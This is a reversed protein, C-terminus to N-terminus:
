HWGGSLIKSIDNYTLLLFVVAIAVLGAIQVANQVAVSLPKRRAKEILLFVVHGGDVIPLPLFNIVALNASIVAMLWIVWIPGRQEGLQMGTHFIGVPGSFQSGHVRGKVFQKLTAYTLIIFDGTEHVGIKLADFLSSARVVDGDLPKVAQSLVTLPWEYYQALTRDGSGDLEYGFDALAIPSTEREKGGPPIYTLTVSDQPSLASAAAILEAWTKVPQGNIATILSGPRLADQESYLPTGPLINAVVLHQDDAKWSIGIREHGENKKIKISNLSDVIEDGRLISISLTNRKEKAANETIKIFLEGSPSAKGDYSYIIDGIKIHADEAPSEPTVDWVHMHPQLGLVNFWPPDFWTDNADRPKSPDPRFLWHGKQAQLRFLREASRSWSLNGSMQVLKEQGDRMVQVDVPAPGVNEAIENLDWPQTIERDGVAVVKEGGKLQDPFVRKLYDVAEKDDRLVRDLAPAIGFVPPVNKDGPIGETSMLVDFPKDVGPRQITFSFKEDPDSLTSAVQVKNFKNIRTGNLGIIKDGPKLGTGLNDPLKALDAPFAPEVAGITTSTFRIGITFVVVFLIAALIVNMVVGASVVAMRAWIPRNNYARPDAEEGEKPKFDDQGLMKVYGGLPLLNIRYETEGRRIGILKRGFGLAFEEVKIGVWKAVLFHGLEHIFVVLGFGIVMMIIAATPSFWFTQAALPMATVAILNDM